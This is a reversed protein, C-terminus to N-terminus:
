TKCYMGRCKGESKKRMESVAPTIYRDKEETKWEKTKMMKENLREKKDYQKGRERERGRKKEKM